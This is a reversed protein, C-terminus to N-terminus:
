FATILLRIAVLALTGALLRVIFTGSVNHSLRAGFQAGIIAGVSLVAARRFGEVIPASVMRAIVAAFSTLTVLFQSTATAVHAPFALFQTMAPVEMIGGGIGLLGSILGVIFSIAMGIPLSFSYSFINGSSDIITRTTRGASIVPGKKLRQPRVMLYAAVIILSAGFVIQFVNRSLMTNVATGIVAGPASALSFLIGSRFDIRKLRSYAISGSLANLFAVTLTIATITSPSAEPYLFLLIPVLLFGGGAGILTSFVGVALGIAALLLWMM